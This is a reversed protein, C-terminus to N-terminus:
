MSRGSSLPPMDQMGLMGRLVKAAKEDSINTTAVDITPHLVFESDKDTQQILTEALKARTAVEQTKAVVYRGNDAQTNSQVYGTYPNTVMVKLAPNERKAEALWQLTWDSENLPGPLVIADLKEGNQLSAKLQKEWHRLDDESDPQPPHQPAKHRFHYFQIGDDSQLMHHRELEDADTTLKGHSFFDCSNFNPALGLRDQLQQEALFWASHNHNYLVLVHKM